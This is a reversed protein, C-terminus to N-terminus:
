HFIGNVNKADVFTKILHAEDSILSDCDWSFALSLWSSANLTNKSHPLPALFFLNLLRWPIRSFQIDSSHIKLIVKLLHDFLKHFIGLPVQLHTYCHEKWKIDNLPECPSAKIGAFIFKDRESHACHCKEFKSLSFKILLLSSLLICEGLATKDEKIVERSERGRKWGLAQKIASFYVIIAIISWLNM